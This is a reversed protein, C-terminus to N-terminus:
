VSSLAVPRRLAESVVALAVAVAASREAAEVTVISIIKEATHASMVSAAKSSAAQAARRAVEEPYPLHGGDRPVTVTVEYSRPPENMGSVTLGTDSMEAQVPKALSTLKLISPQGAEGGADEPQARKM